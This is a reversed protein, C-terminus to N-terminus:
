TGSLPSYKTAMRLSLSSIIQYLMRPAHLNVATNPLASFGAQIFM